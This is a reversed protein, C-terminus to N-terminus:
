VWQAPAFQRWNSLYEEVTGAGAPTNYWRKWYEAQGKLDHPIPAPVRLYHIRCMASAYYLNGVMEEAGMGNGYQNRWRNIKKALEPRHVLYRDWLDGHTAPEMQYIGRAPGNGLQVLWLGCKSEQCATGLVLAEARGGGLGLDRLVPRIIEKLLQNADIM